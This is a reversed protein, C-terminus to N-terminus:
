KFVFIVEGLCSEFIKRVDSAPKGMRDVFVRGDRLMRVVEDRVLEKFSWIINGSVRFVVNRLM